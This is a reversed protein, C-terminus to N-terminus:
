SKGKKKKKGSAPNPPPPPPPPPPSGVSKIESIKIEVNEVLKSGVDITKGGEEFEEKKLIYGKPLDFLSDPLLMAQIQVPELNVVTRKGLIDMEMKVGMGINKGNTFMPIDDSNIYQQSVPYYLSDSYWFLFDMDGILSKRQTTDIFSFSSCHQGLINRKMETKHYRVFISNTSDNKLQRASYNKASDNIRYFIGKSFDIIIIDDQKAEASSKKVAGKIKQKGYLVEAMGSQNEDDGTMKYIIKGEFPAQSFVVARSFLFCFLFVAKPM